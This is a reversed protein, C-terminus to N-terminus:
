NSHEALIDWPIVLFLDVENSGLVHEAPLLKLVSLAASLFIPFTLSFKLSCLLRKHQKM